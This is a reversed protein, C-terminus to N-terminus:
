LEGRHQNSLQQLDCSCLRSALWAACGGTVRWDATQTPGVPPFRQPRVSNDPPFASFSCRPRTGGKNPNNPLFFFRFDAENDQRRVLPETVGAATTKIWIDNWSFLKIFAKKKTSQMLLLVGCNELTHKLTRYKTDATRFVHKRYTAEEPIQYSCACIHKKIHHSGNHKTIRNMPFLRAVVPPWINWKKM